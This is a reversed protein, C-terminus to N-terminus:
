IATLLAILSDVSADIVIETVNQYSNILDGLEEFFREELKNLVGFDEVIIIKTPDLPQCQKM